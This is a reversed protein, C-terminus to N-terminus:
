DSSFTRRRMHISHLGPFYFLRDSIPICCQVIRILKIELLTLLEGSEFLLSVRVVVNMKYWYFYDVPLLELQGVVRICQRPAQVLLPFMYLCINNVTM